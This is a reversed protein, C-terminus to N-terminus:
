GCLLRKARVWLERPSPWKRPRWKAVPGLEERLARGKFHMAAAVTLDKIPEDDNNLM